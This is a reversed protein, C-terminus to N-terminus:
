MNNNKSKWVELLYNHRLLKYLIDYFTSFTLGLATIYNVKKYYPTSQDQEDLQISISSMVGYWKTVFNTSELPNFFSTAKFVSQKVITFHM